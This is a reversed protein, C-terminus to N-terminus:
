CQLEYVSENVRGEANTVSLSRLAQSNLFESSHQRPRAASPNIGEDFFVTPEAKKLM